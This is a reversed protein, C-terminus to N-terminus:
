KVIGEEEHLGRLEVFPITSAWSGESGAFLAASSTKWLWSVAKLLLHSVPIVDVLTRLWHDRTKASMQERLRRFDCHLSSLLIGVPKALTSQQQVLGTPKM